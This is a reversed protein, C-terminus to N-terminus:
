VGQETANKLLEQEYSTKFGIYSIENPNIKEINVWESNENLLQLEVVDADSTILKGVYYAEQDDYTYVAILETKLHNLATKFDTFHEATFDKLLAESNNNKLEQYEEKEWIRYKQADKSKLISFGDFEGTDENFNLLLVIEANAILCIGSYVNDWNPATDIDIVLKQKIIDEM